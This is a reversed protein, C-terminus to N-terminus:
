GELLRRTLLDQMDRRGAAVPLVYVAEGIVRYIMQVTGRAGRCRFRPPRL